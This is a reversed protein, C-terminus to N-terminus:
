NWYINHKSICKALINYAKYGNRRSNSQKKDFSKLTFITHTLCAIKSQFKQLFKRLLFKSSTNFEVLFYAIIQASYTILTPM